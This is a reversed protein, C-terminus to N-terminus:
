VVYLTSLPILLLDLYFPFSCLSPHATVSLSLCSAQPTLRGWIKGIKHRKEIRVALAATQVMLEERVKWVWKGIVM